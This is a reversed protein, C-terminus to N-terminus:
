ILFLFLWVGEIVVTIMVTYRLSFPLLFFINAQVACQGTHLHKSSTWSNNLTLQFLSEKNQAQIIFINHDYIVLRSDDTLSAM